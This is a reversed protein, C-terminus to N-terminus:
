INLKSLALSSEVCANNWKQQGKRSSKPWTICKQLNEQITKISVYSSTNVIKIMQQLTNVSRLFHMSLNLVKIVKRWIL